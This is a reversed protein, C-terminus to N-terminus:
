LFKTLKYFTVILWLMIGVRMTNSFSSDKDGGAFFCLMYNYCKDLYRVTTLKRGTNVSIRKARRSSYRELNLWSYYGLLPSSISVPANNFHKNDFM